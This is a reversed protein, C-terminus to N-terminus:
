RSNGQEEEVELEEQEEEQLEELSSRGGISLVGAGAGLNGHPTLAPAPTIRPRISTDDRNQSSDRTLTFGFFSNGCVLLGIQDIWIYDVPIWSPARNANSKTNCTQLSQFDKWGYSVSLECHYCKVSM